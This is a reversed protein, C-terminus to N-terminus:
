HAIFKFKFTDKPLALDGVPVKYDQEPELRYKQLLTGLISFSLFQVMKYGMCSRRGVGFPLFHEPKILRGTSLFREPKFKSPEDWLKDSTNLEHNNLFILTDKEIKYGAISSDQNAVHPVIPSSIMRIAELIVADTYPMVPRDQLTLPRAGNGTVLDAEAKVREQVEPRSAVFGLAKVLLNAVASHGGVIDELAFMASDLTLLKEKQQSEVHELLAEIYDGSEEQSVLGQRRRTLRDNIIHTEMFQRIEHSWQKMQAMQKSHFPLLWPLFDAACGQNVEYFISDFIDLTHNFAADHRDFKKSCFYASFINACAHILEPKIATSAGATADLRATLDHMEEAVFSDLHSFRASFSQPFTHARLMERRTKQLESWDCFALSNEKDGCFLQHFRAFNPRGDFHAGKAILVEKINNLGNVVLCKQNGLHLNIVPGYRKALDTFAAYPVEYGGLLHMSGILPWSRPGPAEPLEDQGILLAQKTQLRRRRFVDIALAVVLAALAALLTYSVISLQIM